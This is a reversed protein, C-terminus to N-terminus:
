PLALCPAAYCPLKVQQLSLEELRLVLFTLSAFARLCKAVLFAVADCHVLVHAKRSLKVKATASAM